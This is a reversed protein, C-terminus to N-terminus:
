VEVVLQPVFRRNEGPYGRPNCIVRTAGVAYDFNVHTHGHVWLAPEHKEIVDSLDSIFAATVLTDRFKPAISRIHPGHHTVVVTAGAAHPEALAAELFARSALHARRAHAPSFSTAPGDAERASIMRHDSMVRGAIEMAQQRKDVGYIEYDSWLTSGIFRVGGIEVVDDDLWQIDFRPAAERARGREEYWDLGYFEHNGALVVIPLEPGAQARVYEFGRATGHCIDGAVILADIGAAIDLQLDRQFELHLDSLIQLRM